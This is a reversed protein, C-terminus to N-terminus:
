DQAEKLLKSLRPLSVRERTGLPQAFLSVRLEEILWRGHILAAVATPDAALNEQNELKGSAGEWIALAQEEQQSGKSRGQSAKQLRTAIAQLYRGLDEAGECLDWLFGPYILQSLQSRVQTVEGLAALPFHSSLAASVERYSAGVEGLERSLVYM